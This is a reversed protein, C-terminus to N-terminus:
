KALPSCEAFKRDSIDLTGDEGLVKEGQPIFKLYNPNPTVHSQVFITQIGRYLIKKKDLGKSRLFGLLNM